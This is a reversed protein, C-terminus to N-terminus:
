RCAITTSCLSVARCEDVSETALCPEVSLTEGEDCTPTARCLEEPRCFITSGCVSAANCSDEDAECAFRSSVMGADCEPFADCQVEPRCSITSGCETVTNCEEEGRLCARESQAFNDSCEPIALCMDVPEKCLVSGIEDCPLDFTITRCMADECEAETALELGESECISDPAPYGVANCEEVPKCLVSGVEDCPLDFAITQCMVGECEEETALELGESECISNPAPFGEEECVPTLEEVCIVTELEGPCTTVSFEQCRGNEPCESVYSLGQEDCTATAQELDLTCDYAIEENPECATLASISVMLLSLISTMSTYYNSYSLM